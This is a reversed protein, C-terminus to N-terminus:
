YDISLHWGIAHKHAEQLIRSFTKLEVDLKGLDWHKSKKLERQLAEITKLGDAASLWQDAPLKKAVRALVTPDDILASLEGEDTRFFEMLPKVKAKRALKELETAHKALAYGDVHEDLNSIKNQLVIYFAPM